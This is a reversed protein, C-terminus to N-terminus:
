DKQVMGVEMALGPVLKAMERWWVKGTERGPIVKEWEDLRVVM